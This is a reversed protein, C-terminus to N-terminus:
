FIRVHDRSQLTVACQMINQKFYSWNSNTAPTWRQCVHKTTATIRHMCTTFDHLLIYHCENVWISHWESAAKATCDTPILGFRLDIEMRVSISIVHFKLKIFSKRMGIWGISIIDPNANSRHVNSITIANRPMFHVNVMHIMTIGNSTVSFYAIIMSTGIECSIESFAVHNYTAHQVTCRVCVVCYCSSLYYKKRSEIQIIQRALSKVEEM